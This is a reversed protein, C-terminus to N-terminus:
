VLQIAIIMKRKRYQVEKFPISNGFVFWNDSYDNFQKANNQMAKLDKLLINTLPLTRISSKTKPSSITWKEGKIKTMLTKTIKVVKKNFDIDKWTLAQAEGQRLGNYYLLEFFVLYEFEKIVSNFQKYEELTFFQMERKIQNVDKYNEIFKLIADSTNYHKNSYIIIQKLLGLIKNNYHSSFGLNEIYNSLQRYLSINLDNIKKNKENFLLYSQGTYNRMTKSIKFKETFSKIDYIFNNINQM